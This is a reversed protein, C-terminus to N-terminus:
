GHLMFCVLRICPSLVVCDLCYENERFQSAWLEFLFVFLTRLSLSSIPTLFCTWFDLDSIDRLNFKQM